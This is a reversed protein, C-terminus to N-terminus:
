FSPPSKVYAFLNEDCNEAIDRPCYHKKRWAEIARAKIRNFRRNGEADSIEGDQMLIEPTLSEAIENWFNRVLRNYEAIHKAHIEDLEERVTM